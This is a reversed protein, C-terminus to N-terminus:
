WQFLSTYVLAHLHRLLSPDDGPHQGVRIVMWVHFFDVAAGRNNVLANGNGSDITRHAEKLFGVNKGAVIEPIASGTVLLAGVIMVIVEDIDPGTFDVFKMVLFDLNKLALQNLPQTEFEYAM